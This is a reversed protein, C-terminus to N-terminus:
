LGLSWFFIRVFGVFFMPDSLCTPLQLQYFGFLHHIAVLWSAGVNFHFCLSRPIQVNVMRFWKWRWGVLTFCRWALRLSFLQWQNCNRRRKGDRRETLRLAVHSGGEARLENLFHPSNRAPKQISGKCFKLTRTSPVLYFPTCNWFDFFHHFIYTDYEIIYIYIYMDHFSMSLFFSLLIDWWIIHSPDPHRTWSMVEGRVLELDHLAPRQPLYPTRFWLTLSYRPLRFTM